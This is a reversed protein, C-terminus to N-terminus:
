GSSETWVKIADGEEQQKKAVHRVDYGHQYPRAGSLSGVTHMAAGNSASRADGDAKELRVAFNTAM